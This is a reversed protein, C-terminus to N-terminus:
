PVELMSGGNCLLVTTSGRTLPLHDFPAEPAKLRRVFDKKNFLLIGLVGSKILIFVKGNTLFRVNSNHPDFNFHIYPEGATATTLNKSGPTKSLYLYPCTNPKVTQPSILTERKLLVVLSHSLFYPKAASAHPNIECRSTILLVVGSLSGYRDKDSHWVSGCSCSGAMSRIVPRYPCVCVYVYM